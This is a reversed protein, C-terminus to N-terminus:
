AAIRKVWELVHAKQYRPVHPSLWTVIPGKGSLRWRCVTSPNVRLLTAVEETTLFPPLQEWEVPPKAGSHPEVRVEEDTGNRFQGPTM